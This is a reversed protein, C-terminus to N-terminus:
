LYGPTSIDANHPVGFLLYVAGIILSTARYPCMPEGAMLGGSSLFVTQIPPLSGCVLSASLTSSLTAAQGLLFDSVATAVAWLVASTGSTSPRPLPTIMISNSNTAKRGSWRRVLLIQLGTTKEMRTLTGDMPRQSRPFRQIPMRIFHTPILLRRPREKGQM